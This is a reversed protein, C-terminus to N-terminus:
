PGGRLLGCLLSTVDNVLDLATTVAREPVYGWAVALRLGAEVERASGRAVRYCHLRDKGSRGSGEAVNLSVSSAARRIQSALDRDLRALGPLLSRLSSVLEFSVDLARFAM